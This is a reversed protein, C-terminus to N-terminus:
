SDLLPVNPRMLAQYQDRRRLTSWFAEGKAPSLGIELTHGQITEGRDYEDVEEHM